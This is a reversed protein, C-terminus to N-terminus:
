RISWEFNKIGWIGFVVIFGFPAFSVIISKYNELDWLEFRAFVFEIWQQAQINNTVKIFLENNIIKLIPNPISLLIEFNHEFFYGDFEPIPIGEYHDIITWDNLYDTFKNVDSSFVEWDFVWNKSDNIIQIIVGQSAGDNEIGLYNFLESYDQLKPIASGMFVNTWYNPVFYKIDLLFSFSNNEVYRGYPLISPVIIWTLFIFSLIYFVSFLYLTLFNKIISIVFFILVYTIVIALIFVSMLYLWNINEWDISAKIWTLYEQDGWYSWDTALFDIKTSLLWVLFTMFLFLGFSFVFSILINSIIVRTKTINTLSLSKIFSTKRVELMTGGFLFMIISIIGISTVFTLIFSSPVMWGLGILLFLPLVFSVYTFPSRLYQIFLKSIYSSM